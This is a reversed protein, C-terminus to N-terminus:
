VVRWRGAFPERGPGCEARLAAHARGLRECERAMGREIERLRQSWRPVGGARFYDELKRQTQRARRSLPRGVGQDDIPDVVREVPSREPKKTSEGGGVAM